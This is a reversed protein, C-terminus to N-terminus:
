SCSCKRAELAALEGTRVKVMVEGKQEASPWSRCGRDGSCANVCQGADDRTSFFDQGGGPRASACPSVREDPQAPFANPLIILSATQTQAPSRRPRSCQSQRRTRPPRALRRAPHRHPSRLRRGRRLNGFGSDRRTQICWRRRSRLCIRRLCTSRASSSPHSSTALGRRSPRRNHLVSPEEKRPLARTRRPCPSCSSPM